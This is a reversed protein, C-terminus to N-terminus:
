VKKQVYNVTLVNEKDCFSIKGLSYFNNFFFFWFFWSQCFSLKTVSVSALLCQSLSPLVWFSTRGSQYWNGRKKFIPCGWQKGSFTPQKPSLVARDELINAWPDKGMICFASCSVDHTRFMCKPHPYPSGLTTVQGFWFQITTNPCM